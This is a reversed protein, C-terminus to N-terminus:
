MKALAQHLCREMPFTLVCMKNLLLTFTAIIYSTHIIIRIKGDKRKQQLRRGFADQPTKGDISAGILRGVRQCVYQSYTFQLVDAQKESVGSFDPLIQFDSLTNSGKTIKLGTKSGFLPRPEGIMYIRLVNVSLHFSSDYSSVNKPEHSSYRNSHYGFGKSM